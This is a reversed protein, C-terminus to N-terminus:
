LAREAGLEKGKAVNKLLTGQEVLGKVLSGYVTSRFLADSFLIESQIKYYIRVIVLFTVHTKM